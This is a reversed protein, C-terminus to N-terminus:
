VQLFYILKMIWTFYFVFWGFGFYLSEHSVSNVNNMILILGQNMLDYAWKGNSSQFHKEEVCINSRPRFDWSDFEEILGHIRFSM